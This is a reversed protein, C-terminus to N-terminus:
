LPQVVFGLVSGDPITGTTVVRFQSTTRGSLPCIVDVYNSAQSQDISIAYNASTLATPLSVIFDQGDAPQSITRRFAKSSLPWVGFRLVSGDPPAGTTLVHFRTNTRDALPCVVGLANTVDSQDVIVVYDGSISGGVDVYFDTGDTPQTIFRGVPLPRSDVPTVIFRITTGDPPPFTTEVRFGSATRNPFPCVIGLANNADTQDPSVIYNGDLLAATIPVLFDTGDAPQAILRSVAFTPPITTGGGGGGGSAGCDWKGNRWPM